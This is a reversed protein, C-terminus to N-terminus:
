DLAENIRKIFSDGAKAGDYDIWIEFDNIEIISNL